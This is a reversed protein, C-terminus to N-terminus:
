EKIYQNMDGGGLLEMLIHFEDIKQIPDHKRMFYKYQVIIFKISIKNNNDSNTDNNNKTKNNNNADNNNNNNIDNKIRTM